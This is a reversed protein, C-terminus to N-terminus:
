RSTDEELTGPDVVILIRGESLVRRSSEHYLLLEADARSIMIDTSHTGYVGRAMTVLPNDGVRETQREPRAGSAYAAPGWRRAASPQMRAVDLVVRGDEDLIRPFLAPKLFADRDSGYWPLPGEAHIVLGSYEVAPHWELIRDLEIPQQFDILPATLNPALPFLYELSLSKLDAAPQSRVLVAKGQLNRVLRSLEVSNGMLDIYQRRSDVRVSQVFLSFLPAFLEKLEAEKRSVLTSRNRVEGSDIPATLTIYLRKNQWDIRSHSTAQITNLVSADSTQAVLTVTVLCFFAAMVTFRRFQQYHVHNARM